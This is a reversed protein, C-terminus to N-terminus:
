CEVLKMDYFTNVPNNAKINSYAAAHNLLRVAKNSQRHQWSSTTQFEGKSFFEKTSTTYDTDTTQSLHPEKLHKKGM